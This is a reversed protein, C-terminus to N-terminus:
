PKKTEDRARVRDSEIEAGFRRILYHNIVSAFFRNGNANPHLGDESLRNKSPMWSGPPLIPGMFIVKRIMTDPILQLDHKAALEREIGDFPDTVFGRPIEVLIPEINNSQLTTIIKALNEFAQRRGLGQNYDHGGLEIVVAQPNAALIEPLMKLGDASTIGDRGFDAVPVSLLKELEQPYGFDTLSDGLCAIPQQTLKLVRQTTASDNRNWGYWVFCSWIIFFSVFTFRKGNASAANSDTETRRTTKKRKHRERILGTISLALATMAFVVTATPWASRKMCLVVVAVIVALWSAIPKQASLTGLLLWAGVAWPLFEPFVLLSALFFLFLGIRTFSKM